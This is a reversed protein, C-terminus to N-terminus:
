IRISISRTSRSACCTGGCTSATTEEHHGAAFGPVNRLYKPSPLQRLMMETQVIQANIVIQANMKHREEDSLTGRAVRLNRLEGRNYLLEPVRM